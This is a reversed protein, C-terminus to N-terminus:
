LLVAAIVFVQALFAVLMRGQLRADVIVRRRRLRPRNTRRRAATAGTGTDAQESGMTVRGPKAEDWGIIPRGALPKLAM